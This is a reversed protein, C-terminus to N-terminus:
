PADTCASKWNLVNYLTQTRLFVLHILFFFVRKWRRKTFGQKCWLLILYRKQIEIHIVASIFVQFLLPDEFKKFTFIVLYIFLTMHLILTLFLLQLRFSFFLWYDLAHWFANIIEWSVLHRVNSRTNQKLFYNCLLWHM